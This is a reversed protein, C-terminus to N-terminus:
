RVILAVLEARSSVGLKTFIASIQNTVTNVSTGRVTAIEANSRGLVVQEAVQLEAASLKGRWETCGLPFSMLAFEAGDIAFATVQTGEAGLVNVTESADPRGPPRDSM